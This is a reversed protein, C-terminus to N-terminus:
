RGGGVRYTFYPVPPSIRLLGVGGRVPQCRVLPARLGISKSDRIQTTSLMKLDHVGQQQRIWIAQEIADFVMSTAM